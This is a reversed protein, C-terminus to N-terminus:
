AAAGARKTEFRRLNRAVLQPDASAPSDDPRREDHWLHYLPGPIRELGVAEQCRLAFDMDEFGWGEFGEDYGGLELFAGVRIACVGVSPANTQAWEMDLGPLHRGLSWNDQERYESELLELTSRKTLRLYETYGVALVGTSARKIMEDVQHLSVLSDADIMVLVHNLGMNGATWRAAHNLLRAKHFTRAGDQYRRAAIPRYHREVVNCGRARWLNGSPGFPIVANM